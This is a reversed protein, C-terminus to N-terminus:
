QILFEELEYIPAECAYNKCRYIATKGEQPQRKTLLPYKEIAQKSWQYIAGPQRRALIKVAYEDAKAGCVAIENHGYAATQGREAWVGFSNPYKGATAAFAHMMSNSREAWVVRNLLVGLKSLVRCMISNGSPTAGDYVEKKRLPIDKQAANTYWFLLGEEDSFNDITHLVVQDAQDLYNQNGTVEAALILAEAYYALDDLFAPNAARGNKYNHFYQHDSGKLKNEIFDLCNVGMQAYVPSIFTAAAEFCASAMLANWGMLKKDDLLPMTRKSREKLLRSRAELLSSEFQELSLNAAAAIEAWNKPRWLINVEEWNGKESVDYAECFLEALQEDQLLVDIERKDWTYYKGEVGESDADYASFFGGDGDQWEAAIFAMTEEVIRAYEKNGTIRYAQCYCGVLLANDYLMKEFHPALWFRDTSYRAFGGQLQDYIGGYMMKDLANLAPQLVEQPSFPLDNPTGVMGFYEYQNLLFRISMTQPFKPPGSFGGWEKDAANMLKQTTAIVWDINTAGSGGSIGKMTFSSRLHETLKDAQESVTDRKSKWSQAIGSLVERWSNLQHARVPPFYTGGFFPKLDPTLFVNLPWGGSGTIATVADMYIQDIDPREERDIKINVFNENMYAATDPNEFSEREMVHCWHCASYGISVLIPKDEDKAKQLATEGWPYWDVPNYAHQLLYPSTEHILRNPHKGEAKM